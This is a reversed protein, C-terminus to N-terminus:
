NYKETHDHLLWWGKCAEGLRVTLMSKELEREAESIGAWLHLPPFPPPTLASLVKGKQTYTKAKYRLRYRYLADPHITAPPHPSRKPPPLSSLPRAQSNLPRLAHKIAHHRLPPVLHTLYWETKQDRSLSTLGQHGQPGARHGQAPLSLPPSPSPLTLAPTAWPVIPSIGSLRWATQGEREM